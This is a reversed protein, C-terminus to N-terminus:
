LTPATPLLPASQQGHEGDRQQEEADSSAAQQEAAGDGAPQGDPRRSLLQQLEAMTAQMAESGKFYLRLKPVYRRM